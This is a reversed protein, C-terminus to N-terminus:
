PSSRTELKEVLAELQKNIAKLQKELVHGIVMLTIPVLILSLVLVIEAM